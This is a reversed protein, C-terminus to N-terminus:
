LSSKPEQHLDYDTGYTQSIIGSLVGVFNLEFCRLTYKSLFNKYGNEGYKVRLNEDLLLNELANALSEANQRQCVLGNEGDVVMDPIGGENTSVIPLKYQM